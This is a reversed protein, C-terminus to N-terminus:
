RETGSKRGTSHDVATEPTGPAYLTIMVMEPPVGYRIPLVSTGVGSSVFLRVGNITCLGRRCLPASGYLDGISGIIPLVVQGGHTHGALVLAPRNPVPSFSTADGEHRLLLVPKGPPIGKLAKAVDAGHYTSNIGAVVLPGVDVNKNRLLKPRLQRAMVIPTWHPEDHNGLVAYVGLPADLAALPPLAEELWSRPKDLLKGGMYDGTLVILDPKLSNAQHVVANLRRTRMDPHGYHTDTIHLVRVERGAPLGELPLRVKVVVPPRTANWYGVGLFLLALAACAALARALWKM